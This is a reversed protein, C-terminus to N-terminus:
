NKSEKLLIIYTPFHDSYGGIYKSFNYTRKPYGKFRGTQQVLFGKNFIHADKYFFGSQNKNLFEQSIIIQDFLNWADNYALTGLGKKYFDVWPNFLGSKRVSEKKGKANLVKTVSPSVPDDNLDGMIIVKAIPDTNMISDMKVKCVGAASKRGPASAEEGGRRSPWHNVFIHLPEGNYLGYVYLVDRTYRPSGDDNFVATFLPESYIVRYYRPNYILGVDIGREDPSDYHVISYNRKLLLPEKVLDQLVSINEVEACGMVSLGDPSVDTGIQSIVEALKGLKDKYIEGTYHNTGQPLFEEDNNPGDITDFLNELNYFGILGIKYNKEQGFLINNSVSFYVLLM